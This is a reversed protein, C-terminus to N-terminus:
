LTDLFAQIVDTAGHLPSFAAEARTLPTTDIPTSTQDGVLKLTGNGPLAPANLLTAVSAFRGDGCALPRLILRSALRDHQEGQLTTNPPDIRAGNPQDLGDKFQFVIPLGFVARPFKHTHSLPTSHKGKFGSTRRRIEDPEPWFSRGFPAGNPQRRRQQRFDKMQEIPYYWAVLGQLMKNPLPTPLAGALIQRLKPEFNKAFREIQQGRGVRLVPQRALTPVGTPGEGDIVFHKLMEHLWRTVSAADSVPPLWPGANSLGQVAVCQLAGFGRRTRAGLGGFTEWAWLAALVEAQDQAKPPLTVALEFKVAFCLGSNNGGRLPFAGYSLPSRPDGLGISRGAASYSKVVVGAGDPLRRVEVHVLSQSSTSGWIRDEDQKMQALGDRGYRGARTARWWFRLHGRVESARVVTIPDAQQPVVGGGFLPAILDYSRLHVLPADTKRELPPPTLEPPTRGM